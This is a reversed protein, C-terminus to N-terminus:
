DQLPPGPQASLIGSLDVQFEGVPGHGATKHILRLVDGHAGEEQHPSRTHQLDRQVTDVKGFLENFHWSVADTQVALITKAFNFPYVCCTALLGAAGGFMINSVNRNFSRDFRALFRSRLFDFIYFELAQYPAVRLVNAGNGKFLGRVGEYRYINPLIRLLSGSYKKNNTQRLIIVREIPAVFTKSFAGAMGGSFLKWDADSFYNAIQNLIGM